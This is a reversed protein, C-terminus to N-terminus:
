NENINTKWRKVFSAWIDAMEQMRNAFQESIIWEGDVKTILGADRMKSLTTYYEQHTCGLDKQMGAWERDPIRKRKILAYVLKEGKEALEPKRYFLSELITRMDPVRERARIKITTEYKVM